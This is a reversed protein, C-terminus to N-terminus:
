VLERTRAVPTGARLRALVRAAAGAASRVAGESSPRLYEWDGAYDVPGPQRAAFDARLALAAPTAEPLGHRFRHTCTATVADELGPVYRAAPAVLAAAVEEDSADLLGPIAAPATMLTLLGRGAPARGRHKVHDVIIGALVPEEVSPTLLTYVPRPAPPALPRDLLCSVKLTPTFTAADVFRRVPERRDTHLSAAVPAPVCLVAARATVRGRDTALVAKGAAVAVDTVTTGTGVDLDAALARALTDMGDRYTRWTSPPGVAMMLSVFPAAASRDPHWGFFSGVVPQFLYDLLDPHYRRALAAITADGLPTSEPRDPDFRRRQRAAAATFRALDLRARPGLGAGTLLGRPSSVGIHAAGDRWMALPGGITPLKRDPIGMRRVLEWTARYGHAPFQEAGEDMTYGDRRHSAMRGGVRDRAEFVRVSLGARTLEHATTLGAIGAGVVAVDLDPTM